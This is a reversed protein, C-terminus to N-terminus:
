RAFPIFGSGIIDKVSTGAVAPTYAIIVGCEALRGTRSTSTTTVKRMGIDTGTGAPYTTPNPSMQTHYGYSTGLSKATYTGDVIIGGTQSTTSSLNARIWGMVGKITAGTLNLDGTAANEIAYHENLTTSSTTVGSWGNTESLARENVQPSHGTGYGSGGAGIQTTFQSSTGNANPRKATVWVDGTDTLSNSDDVYIDSLRMDFSGDTSINGFGFNDSGTNTLTANTVSIDSVGDKFVEFRNTTTNTITYAVSIRYWTGTSLTSGNSGIQNTTEYLKLVGASTLILKFVVTTQDTKQAYFWSCDASPLTAIYIYATVRSGADALYGNNTFVVKNGAPGCRYSKIHGGHVFDTAITVGGDVYRWNMDGSAVTFQADGCPELFKAAM